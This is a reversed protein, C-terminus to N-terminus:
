TNPSAAAVKVQSVHAPKGAPQAEARPAAQQPAAPQAAATAATKGLIRVFEQRIRKEGQRFQNLAPGELVRGMPLSINTPNVQDGNLLVEFHLHPGTARGSAGVFGIVDGQNVRAGAYLNRAFRSMHAYATETKGNHRLRVYRGYAGKFGVEEVVGSGAALIPTGPPAGFDVGKHMKSYGLLPHMRMGFGSTM